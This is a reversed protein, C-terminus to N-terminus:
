RIKEIKEVKGDKIYVIRQANKAINRDHTIMVVTKGKENLEKFIRIVEDGSRSDLNGTPEDALIIEPDLVLARAIAVRQMQGGSIQNPYNALRDLLGLRQLIPIVRAKREEEGVEDLILPITVNEYVNLNGLLNFQQFVFGMKKRRTRVIEDDNMLSIDEGDIHVKGSTPKDLLGILQLLTSKGSGSPGLISVFEGKHVTFNIDDVARIEEDGLTYIKTLAETKLMEEM